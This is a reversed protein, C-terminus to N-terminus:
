SYRDDYVIVGKEIVYADMLDKMVSVVNQNENESISNMTVTTGCTPTEDISISHVKIRNGYLKLTMYNICCLIEKAINEVTPNCYDGGNLTMLWMKSKVQTCAEILVHDKPNLIAAHDFMDDIFQMFVRKVEKFDVAYGIPEVTSYSFTLTYHYTHGHINFCKFRENMVRHCADFTGKRYITQM